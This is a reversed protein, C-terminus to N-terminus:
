DRVALASQSLERKAKARLVTASEEVPPLVLGMRNTKYIEM